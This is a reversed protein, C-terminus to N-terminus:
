NITGGKMPGIVFVEPKKYDEEVIDIDGGIL